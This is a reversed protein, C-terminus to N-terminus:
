VAQIEDRLGRKLRQRMKKKWPMDASKPRYNGGNNYNGSRRWNARLSEQDNLEGTTTYPKM